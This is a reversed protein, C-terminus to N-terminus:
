EADDGGVLDRYLWARAMAWDREVTAHSVGMVEATQSIDLGGFYRLEVVRSKREDITALRELADSLALLEVGRDDAAGDSPLITLHQHDGGRKLARHRRAHDILIRRITTAAVAFFHARDQWTIDAHDALRLYAEHVLATPQLTHDPRERRLADAALARLQEYILPMLEDAADSEGRSLRTLTRTVNDSSEVM